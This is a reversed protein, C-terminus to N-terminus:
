FSGALELPAADVLVANETWSGEKGLEVRLVELWTRKDSDRGQNMNDMHYVDQKEFCRSRRSVGEASWSVQEKTAKCAYLPSIHPNRVLLQGKLSVWLYAARKEVQQLLSSLARCLLTGKLASANYNWLASEVAADLVKAM